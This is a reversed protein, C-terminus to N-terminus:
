TAHATSRKRGRVHEAQPFVRHLRGFLGNGKTYDREHEACIHERKGILKIKPPKPQSSRPQARRMEQSRKEPTDFPEWRKKGLQQMKQSLTRPETNKWRKQANRRQSERREEDSKRVREIPATRHQEKLLVEEIIESYSAPTGRKARRSQEQDLWAVTGEKFTLMITIM